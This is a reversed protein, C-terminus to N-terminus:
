FQGTMRELAKHASERQMITPADQAEREVDSRFQTLRFAGVIDEGAEKIRFFPDCLAAATVAILEPSRDLRNTAKMGALVTLARLRIRKSIGLRAEALLIDDARLDDTAALADIVALMVHVDPNRAVARKLFDVAQVNGSEGIRRAAAAAVAYSSDEELAHVLTLFVASDKDYVGLASVVATRVRSDPEQLASLLTAKARSNGISALSAAAAARVGYFRDQTLVRALV